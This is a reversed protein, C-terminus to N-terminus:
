FGGQRLYERSAALDEFPDQLHTDQEVLVWGDYGADVLTRLVAVNDLGVNGAGLECFRGRQTWRDLGVDADTLLWDKLHLSVVRDAYREAAAVPDGGAGALHATDLILSCDPCRAMFEDLQERTEVLTGMHNHLGLRVGWRACAEAQGNVQRCFTDFDKGQVATWVYKKGLAATWRLSAQPNPGRCTAFDMGLRRFSAAKQIADAPSLAELREVGEFGIEKLGRLREEFDFCGGDWQNMGFDAVGFKM